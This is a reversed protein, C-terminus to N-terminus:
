ICSIECAEFPMVIFYLTLPPKQAFAIHVLIEHAPRYPLYDALFIIKLIQMKGKKRSFCM